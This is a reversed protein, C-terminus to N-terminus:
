TGDRNDVAATRRARSARLNAFHGPSGGAERSSTAVVCRPSNSPPRASLVSAADIDVGWCEAARAEPVFEKLTRGPGSGFDLVRKGEFSWGEPLLGIIADKTEPGIQM